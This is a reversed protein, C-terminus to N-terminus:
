AIDLKNSVRRLNDVILCLAWEERAGYVIARDEPALRLFARIRDLEDELQAVLEERRTVTPPPAPNPTRPETTPTPM